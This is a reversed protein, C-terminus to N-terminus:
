SNKLQGVILRSLEHLQDPSLSLAVTTPAQLADRDVAMSLSHDLSQNFRDVANELAHTALRVVVSLVLSTAVGAISTLFKFTAAALLHGLADRAQNMDGSNMGQSAFHLGAVLGLFTCILGIGVFYGSLSGYFEMNLGARDFSRLGIYDSPRAGNRGARLYATKFSRWDGVVAPLGDVLADVDKVIVETPLDTNTLLQNAPLRRTLANLKLVLPLVKGVAFWLALLTGVACIGMALAVAVVPNNFTDLFRGGYPALWAKLGDLAHGDDGPSMGNMVAFILGLAILIQLVRKM